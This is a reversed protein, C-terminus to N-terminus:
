GYVAIKLRDEAGCATLTTDDYSAWLLTGQHHIPLDAADITGLNTMHLMGNAQLIGYLGATVATGSSAVDGLLLKKVKGWDQTTWIEGTGTFTIMEGTEPATVSDGWVGAVKTSSAAPILRVPLGFAEQKADSVDVVGASLVGATITFVTGATSGQVTVTGVTAKDLEWALLNGFTGSSSPFDSYLNVNTTGSLNVQYKYVTTSSTPVAYITLVQYTDLASNSAIHLHEASPQNAFAAGSQASAFRSQSATSFVEASTGRCPQVYVSYGTNTALDAQIGLARWYGGLDVIGQSGSLLVPITHQYMLTDDM